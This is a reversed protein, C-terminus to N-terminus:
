VYAVLGVAALASSGVVAWAIKIFQSRSNLTYGTSSVVYRIGNFLHFTFPWAVALKILVKAVVPLSGFAAVLAASSLDLGLWPAVLYSTGFLYLSGALLLGTNRELASSVSHVQWKYISLHPAVPRRLRQRALEEQASEPKIVRLPTTVPKTTQMRMHQQRALGIIPTFTNSPFAVAARRVALMPSTKQMLMMSKQISGAM